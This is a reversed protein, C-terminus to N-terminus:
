PRPFPLAKESSLGACPAAAAAVGQGREPPMDTQDLFNALHQRLVKHSAAGLRAYKGITSQCYAPDTFGPTSAHGPPVLGDQTSLAAPENAHSSSDFPQAVWRACTARISFRM